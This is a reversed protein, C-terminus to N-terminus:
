TGPQIYPVAEFLKREAGRPDDVLRSPNNFVMTQRRPLTYHEWEPLDDCNPDGHHALALFASSIQASMKRAGEGTGTISDPASLTGFALAIDLTHPAGWKGGDKPSAWDLQYAWTPAGQLARREAERVAGPWSRGATTAAFYVDSASYHPYLRRYAEIVYEPRIDVRLGQILREPLESWELSFLSDDGGTFARTEDHTNGIIMPINASQPPADPFFPHRHLHRQDLVPGFYVGGATYPDRASLGELLREAPMTRLREVQAAPLGMADLFVQARGTAHMPGSATLQQGSMTAARHFLGDAAPMAMMTAIKAGGGSQGFVMIRKPDGGFEEINDRVWQLALILDLQGANGGDAFAEGGLRRFYGYGFVNLRHNVTVVVVDGRECLGTGDYLANAGSGHAYAGGHIYFMVPRRRGDRLGPTWVNLFLCDESTAEDAGTQPCAAGYDLADRVGSWPDPARPPLFRAPGTDAGYRIGKFGYIDGQRRGRVKGARTRAVAPNAGQALNPMALAASMALGGKLLRRRDISPPCPPEPHM